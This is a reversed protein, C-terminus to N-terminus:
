RKAMGSVASINGTGEIKALTTVRLDSDRSVQDIAAVYNNQRAPFSM